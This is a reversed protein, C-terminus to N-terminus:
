QIKIAKRDLDDFEKLAESNERLTIHPKKWESVMNEFRGKGIVEMGRRLNENGEDLRRISEFLADM